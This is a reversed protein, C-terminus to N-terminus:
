GYPNLRVFLRVIRVFGVIPMRTLLCCTARVPMDMFGFGVLVLGVLGTPANNQLDPSVVGVLGVDHTQRL